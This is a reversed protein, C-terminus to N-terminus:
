KSINTQMSDNKTNASNFVQLNDITENLAILIQQIIFTNIITSTPGIKCGNEKVSITADGVVGYNDFNLDAIDCLFKNSEHRSVLSYKIISNSISIVIAGKQKVNIALEIPLKNIGSNSVIFLIDNKGINYLNEIVTAYSSTREIYTSKFPNQHLMLEPELIPIFINNGGARVYTEEAIMHSHGSGIIFVRGGKQKQTKILNACQYFKDVNGNYTKDLMDLIIDYYQKTKM